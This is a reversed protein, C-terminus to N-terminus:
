LENKLKKALEAEQEKFMDAEEELKTKYWLELMEHMETCGTEKAIEIVTKGNAVAFTDASKLRLSKMVENQCSRAAVHSGPWGEGDLADPNSGFDVLYSFALVHGGEIARHMALKGGIVEDVTAGYQRLARVKAFNGVEAAKHMLSLTEGKGKKNVDCTTDELAQFLEEKKGASVREYLTSLAEDTCPENGQNGRRYVLEIPREDMRTYIAYLAMNITSEGNIEVLRDGIKTGRKEAEKGKHVVTVMFGMEPDHVCGYDQRNGHEMSFRHEPAGAAVLAASTFFAVAGLLQM